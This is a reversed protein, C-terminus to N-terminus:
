FFRVGGTQEGHLEFRRGCGDFQVIGVKSSATPPLPPLSLVLHQSVQDEIKVENAAWARRLQRILKFRDKKKHRHQAKLNESEAEIQAITDARLGPYQALFADM